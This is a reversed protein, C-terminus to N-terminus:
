EPLSCTSLTRQWVYSSVSSPWGIAAHLSIAYRPLMSSSSPPGPVSSQRRRPTALFLKRVNALTQRPDLKIQLRFNRINSLKTTDLCKCPREAHQKLMACRRLSSPNWARQTLIISPISHAKKDRTDFLSTRRRAPCGFIREGFISSCCSSWSPFNSRALSASGERWDHRVIHSADATRPLFPRRTAHM